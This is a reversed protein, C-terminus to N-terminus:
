NDTEKPPMAAALHKLWDDTVLTVLGLSALDVNTISRKIGHRNELLHHHPYVAAVTWMEQRRAAVRGRHKEEKTIKLKYGIPLPELVRM